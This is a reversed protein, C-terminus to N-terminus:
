YPTVDDLLNKDAYTLSYARHTSLQDVQPWKSYCYIGQLGRQYM